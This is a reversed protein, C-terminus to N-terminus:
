RPRVITDASCVECTGNIFSDQTKLYMPETEYLASTRVVTLGRYALERVALEIMQVRNGLNSGLALFARHRGSEFENSLLSRRTQEYQHRELPVKCLPFNVNIFERQMSQATRAARTACDGQFAVANRMTVAAFQLRKCPSQKDALHFLCQALLLAGSEATDSQPQQVFRAVQEHLGFTPHIRNLSYRSYPAKLDSFQRYLTPGSREVTDLRILTVYNSEPSIPIQWETVIQFSNDLEAAAPDKKRTNFNNFTCSAGFLNDIHFNRRIDPQFRLRTAVAAPFRALLDPALSETIDHISGVPTAHARVLSEVHLVEASKKKMTSINYSGPPSFVGM